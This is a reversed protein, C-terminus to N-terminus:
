PIKGTQRYQFTSLIRRMYLRSSFFSASLEPYKMKTRRAQMIMIKRQFIYSLGRLGIETRFFTVTELPFMGARVAEFMALVGFNRGALM